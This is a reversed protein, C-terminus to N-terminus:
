FSGLFTLSGLLELRIRKWVGKVQPLFLPPVQALNYKILFFESVHFKKLGHLLSMHIVREIEFLILNLFRYIVM